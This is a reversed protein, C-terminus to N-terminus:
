LTLLVDKFTSNTLAQTGRVVKNTHRISEIVADPKYKRYTILYYAIMFASRNIGAYCHILVNKGSGAYSHVIKSISKAKRLLVDVDTLNTDEIDLIRVTPISMKNSYLGNNSANIILEINAAKLFKMDYVSNVNGIYINTDIAAYNPSGLTTMSKIIRKFM